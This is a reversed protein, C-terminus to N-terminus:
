THNLFFQIEQVARTVTDSRSLCSAGRVPTSMKAPILIKSLFVEKAIIIIIICTKFKIEVSDTVLQLSSWYLSLFKSHIYHYGVSCAALKILEYFSLKGQLKSATLLPSTNTRPLYNTM